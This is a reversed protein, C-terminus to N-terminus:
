PLKCTLGIIHNNLNLLYKEKCHDSISLIRNEDRVSYFAIYEINSESIYKIDLYKSPITTDYMIEEIPTLYFKIDKNCYVEDYNYGFDQVKESLTNVAYSEAVPWSNLGTLMFATLGIAGGILFASRMKEPLVLFAVAILYFILLPVPNYFAMIDNVGFMVAIIFISIASIACYKYRHELKGFLDTIYKSAIIFIPPLAISFYRQKETAYPLFYIFFMFLIWATLIIYSSNKKVNLLALLLLIAIFPTLQWTIQSIFFLKDFTLEALGYETPIIGAAHSFIESFYDYSGTMAYTALFISCVALIATVAFFAGERLTKKLNRDAYFSYILIPIIILIGSLKTNVALFIFLLSALFYSTRGRKKFMVFFLVSATAFFTLIAGDIDIAQSAIIHYRSFAMLLAAVLGVKKSYMENGLLFTALITLLGFFVPVVRFAFNEIGFIHLSSLYSLTGLPPHAYWLLLSGYETDIHAHVTNADAIYYDVLGNGLFYNKIGTAWDVEDFILNRDMGVTRLSVALLIILLLFVIERKHKLM